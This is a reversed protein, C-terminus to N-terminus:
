HKPFFSAIGLLEPISKHFRTRGCPRENTLKSVGQRPSEQLVVRKLIENRNCPMCCCLDGVIVSMKTKYKQGIRSPQRAALTASVTEIM